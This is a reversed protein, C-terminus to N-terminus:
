NCFLQLDQLQVPQKDGPVFKNDRSINNKYFKNLLNDALLDSMPHVNEFQDWEEELIKSMAAYEETHAFYAVVEQYETASCEKKLYRRIIEKNMETPIIPHRNPYLLPDEM